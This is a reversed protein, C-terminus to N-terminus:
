RRKKGEKNKRWFLVFGCKQRLQSNRSLERILSSVGKHEYIQMACLSNLMPGVTFDNRGNGSIENLKKILKSDDINEIALKLRELDGLNEIEENYFFSLQTIIKCM